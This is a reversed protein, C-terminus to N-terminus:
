RPANRYRSGPHREALHPGEGFLKDRLTGPAYERQVIGREQLVPVLHDVVDDYTGPILYNMFNVGDGGAEQWRALVDAVEEPTGVLTTDGTIARLYQRKTVVGDPHKAAEALIKGIGGQANSYDIPDDPELASLDIGVNGGVEAALAESNLLEDFRERKARAEDSTSALVPTLAAFVAVDSAKRGASLAKERLVGVTGAAADLSNLVLAGEAFEAAFDTGAPSSGAQFLVPARQPSPHVILPGQVAYREGVHDVTHVREPDAFVRGARDRRVAGPDWSGELLKLVVQVHERAWVYREDHPTIGDAGYNRHANETSSTVINWGVRGGTFHDLTAIRRALTYPHDQIVSATFILGLDTTTTALASALTLSDLMPFRNGDSVYIDWSGRYPAYLGLVDGIFLGDFRGRELTAALRVWLDLDDFDALENGPLDYPWLGPKVHGPSPCVFANLLLRRPTM